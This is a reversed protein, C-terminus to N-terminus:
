TEQLVVPLLEEPFDQFTLPRLFRRIASTGVSTDRTSTSAPYPGGHTMAPDVSVGTPVGGYILRGVRPTLVELASKVWPDEPRGHITGTLSGEVAALALRLGGTDTTTVVVTAPGFIERSLEPRTQLDQWNTKILTPAAAFGDNRISARWVESTGDSVLAVSEEFQQYIKETLLYLPPAEEFASVLSQVVAEIGEAPVFILGPKTCFQGAGGLVSAALVEPVGSDGLATPAVVVPNVSGLEAYVPIPSTRRAALDYLTRGGAESGTFGVAAVSPHNVLAAGVDNGGHLVQVSDAPLGSDNLAGRVIRGVEESTQPHGYHAKVVVSCGAALASATDGGAVSFAFPFNSASFVAVVGVPMNVRRLDRVPSGAPWSSRLCELHSGDLCLEAFARLQGTTRSVEGTLRAAGLATESDALAVLQPMQGELAAAIAELGDAIDGAGLESLQKVANVARGLTDEVLGDSAHAFSPGFPTGTRPDVSRIM